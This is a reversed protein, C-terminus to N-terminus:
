TRRKSRLGVRLWILFNKTDKSVNLQHGVLSPRLQEGNHLFCELLNCCNKIRPEVGNPRKSAPTSGNTGDSSANNQQNGRCYRRSEPGNTLAM